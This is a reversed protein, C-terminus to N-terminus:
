DVRPEPGGDLFARSGPHWPLGGPAEPKAAPALESGALAETVLWAHDARFSDRAVLLRGSLPLLLGLPVPGYASFGGSGASMALADASELVAVGLQETGLLSALRGAHPARAVRASAAPLREALRAVVRQALAYTEPDAKHCGILLHKQRYVVWQGYPTHGATLLAAGAGAALRLLARRGPGRGSM